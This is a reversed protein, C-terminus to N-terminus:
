LPSYPLCVPTQWLLKSLRTSRLLEFRFLQSSPSEWRDTLKNQDITQSNISSSVPFIYPQFPCAIVHRFIILLRPADPTLGQRTSSRRDAKSFHPIHVRLKKLNTSAFSTRRRDIASRRSVVQAICWRHEGLLNSWWKKIWIALRCTNSVFMTNFVMFSILSSHPGCASCMLCISNVMLLLATITSLNFLSRYRSRFLEPIAPMSSLRSTSTVQSACCGYIILKEQLTHARNLFNKWTCISNQTNTSQMIGFDM